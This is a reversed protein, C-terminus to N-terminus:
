CPSLAVPLVRRIVVAKFRLVLALGRRQGRQGVANCVQVPEPDLPTVAGSAHNM